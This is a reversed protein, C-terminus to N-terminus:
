FAYSVHGTQGVRLTHGLGELVIANIGFTVGGKM